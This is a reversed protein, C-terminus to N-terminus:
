SRVWDSITSEILPKNWGILSHRWGKIVWTTINPLYQKETELTVMATFLSVLCTGASVSELSPQGVYCVWYRHVVWHYLVCIRSSSFIILRDYLLPPTIIHNFIVSKQIKYLNTHLSCNWLYHSFCLIYNQNVQPLGFRVCISNDKRFISQGNWSCTTHSDITTMIQQLPKM